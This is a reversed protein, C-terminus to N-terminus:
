IWMTERRTSLSPLFTDSLNSYRRLLSIVSSRSCFYPGPMRRFAPLFAFLPQQLRYINCFPVDFPLDGTGEFGQELKVAEACHAFETGQKGQIIYSHFFHLPFNASAGIM